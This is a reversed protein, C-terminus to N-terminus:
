RARGRTRLDEPNLRPLRKRIIQRFRERYRKDLREFGEALDGENGGLLRRIGQDECEAILAM